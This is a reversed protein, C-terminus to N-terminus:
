ADTAAVTAAVRALVHTWVEHGVTSMPKLPGDNGERHEISKDRGGRGRRTRVHDGPRPQGMVLHDPVAM